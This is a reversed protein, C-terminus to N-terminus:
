IEEIGIKGEDSEESHRPKTARKSVRVKSNRDKRLKKDRAVGATM